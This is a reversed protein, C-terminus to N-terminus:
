PRDYACDPSSYEPKPDIIYRRVPYSHSAMGLWEPHPFLPSPPILTITQPNNDPSIQFMVAITLICIGHKYSRFFAANKDFVRSVKFQKHLALSTTPGQKRM